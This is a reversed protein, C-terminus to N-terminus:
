RRAKEYRIGTTWSGSGKAPAQQQNIYPIRLGLTDNYKILRQLMM